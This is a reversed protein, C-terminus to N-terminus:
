LWRCARSRLAVNLMLIDSESDPSPERGPKKSPQKRATDECSPSPFLLIEGKEELLRMLGM